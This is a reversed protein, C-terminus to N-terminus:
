TRTQMEEATAERWDSLDERAVTCTYPGPGLQTPRVQADLAPIGEDPECGLRIVYVEQQYEGAGKNHTAIKM